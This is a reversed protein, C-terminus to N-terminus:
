LIQYFLLAYHVNLHLLQLKVIVLGAIQAYIVKIDKQANEKQTGNLNLIDWAHMKILANSSNTLKMAEEGTVQDLDL